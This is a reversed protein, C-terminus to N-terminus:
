TRAGFISTGLRVLTAGEEVAVEFDDSTGMSLERLGHRRALAALKRFWPRNDEARAAPPPMTMLGVCRLRPLAAIAELLRPLEAENVGAKTAEGAVNVQVLVDQPARARRSLAAALEASDVGHILAVQSVVDKAKNKQLRGVFHWVLGEQSLDALAAQKALIEQAYNEGFVRQGARFAERIAEPPHKKSVAVIRVEDSRRGAREAARAIRARLDELRAAIESM